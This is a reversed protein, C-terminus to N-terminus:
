KNKEEYLKKAEEFQKNVVTILRDSVVEAIQKSTMDKRISGEDHSSCRQTTSHTAKLISNNENTNLLTVNM